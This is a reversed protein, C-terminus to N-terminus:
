PLRIPYGQLCLQPINLHKAWCTQHFGKGMREGGLFRPQMNSLQSRYAFSLRPLLAYNPAPTMAVPVLNTVYPFPTPSRSFSPSFLPGGGCPGLEAEGAGVVLCLCPMHARWPM